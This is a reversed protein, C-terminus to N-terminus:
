TNPDSKNLIHERLMEETLPKNPLSQLPWHYNARYSSKLISAAKVVGFEKAWETASKGDTASSGGREWYAWDFREFNLDSELRQAKALAVKVGDPNAFVGLAITQQQNGKGKGPKKPLSGRLSLKQGRRLIRVRSLQQNAKEIAQDVRDM